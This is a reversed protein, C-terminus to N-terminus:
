SLITDAPSTLVNQRAPEATATIREGHLLNCATGEEKKETSDHKNAAHFPYNFCVWLSSIKNQQWKTKAKRPGTEQQKKMIIIFM